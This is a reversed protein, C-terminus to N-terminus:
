KSLLAQVRQAAEARPIKDQTQEQLDKLQVVGEEVESEGLIM